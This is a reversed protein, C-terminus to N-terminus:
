GHQAHRQANRDHHADVEGALTRTAGEQESGVCDGAAGCM